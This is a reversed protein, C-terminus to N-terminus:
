YDGVPEGGDPTTLAELVQPDINDSVFRVSGDAMLMNVGGTWPRGFGAPSRNIGLRPDRVNVPHGWPKFRANVEGVILTQSTGDTFAALPLGARAGLVLANGAYHSLARGSADFKHEVGLVPNAYAAIVTSLPGLNQPADWPLELDIREFLATEGLFPLLSTQWSFLPRGLRDFTGGRPFHQHKDVHDHLALGIAKLNNRSEGRRFDIFDSSTLPQKSTTIWVVQHTVGVVAIGAVFALVVATALLFTWRWKWVGNAPPEGPPTIAACWWAALRQFGVVFLALATVATAFGSWSVNLRHWVDALFFLWGAGIRVVVELPVIVGIFALFFLVVAFAVGCGWHKM